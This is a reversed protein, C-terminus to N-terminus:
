NAENQSDIAAQRELAATARKGVFWAVLATAGLGAAGLVWQLTSAHGIAQGLSGIYVYLATAPMIGILTALFFPVFGIHTVSFLYNQLGYPIIPSLRMLGVVRWGEETVARNLALLRPKNEIWRNVRRHAVYRGLLFAVAAALTASIVVLPFGWFGYALGAMLTLGSAPGLVVTVVIYLATFAVVGAVGLSVIWLRLQEILHAAPVLTWVWVLLALIVIGGAFRWRHRM